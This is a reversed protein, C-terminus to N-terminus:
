HPTLLSWRDASLACFSLAFCCFVSDVGAFLSVTGVEIDMAYIYYQISRSNHSDSTLIQSLVM